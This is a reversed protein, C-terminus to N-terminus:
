QRTVPTATEREVSPRAESRLRCGAFALLWALVLSAGLQMNMRGGPAAFDALGFITITEVGQEVVVIAGLWGLWKPLGVRGRLALVTVPAIMAIMAGTLVPGWYIAIDLATRMTEPTANAPHLALGGWVWSQVAGTCAVVTAASGFMDAYPRPLTDRLGAVLALFPAIGLTSAWVSWRIVLQRDVFWQQLEAGQVQPSPASGIASANFGGLILVMLAATLIIFRRQSTMTGGDGPDRAGGIQPKGPSPECVLAAIM